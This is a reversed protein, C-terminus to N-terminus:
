RATGKPPKAKVVLKPPRGTGQFAAPVTTIFFPLLHASM